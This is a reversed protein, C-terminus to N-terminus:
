WMKLRRPRRRMPVLPSLRMFSRYISEITDNAGNMMGTTVLESVMKIYDDFTPFTKRYGVKYAHIYINDKGYEDIIIQSLGTKIKPLLTVPWSYNAYARMGPLPAEKLFSDIIDDFADDAGNEAGVAVMDTIKELFQTHDSFKEKYGQQYVTAFPKSNLFENKVLPPVDDRIVQKYGEPWFTEAASDEEDTDPMFHM